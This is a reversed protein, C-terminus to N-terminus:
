GQILDFTPGEECVIFADSRGLYSLPQAPFGKGLHRLHDL